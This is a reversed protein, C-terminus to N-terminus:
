SSRTESGDSSSGVVTSYGLFIPELGKFLWALDRLLRPNIGTEKGKM